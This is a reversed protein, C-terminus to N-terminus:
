SHPTLDADSFGWGNESILSAVCNEFKDTSTEQPVHGSKLFKVLANAHADSCLLLALM